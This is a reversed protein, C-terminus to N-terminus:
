IVNIDYILTIQNKLRKFIVNLPPPMGANACCEKTSDGTFSFM